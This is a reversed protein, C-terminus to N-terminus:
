NWLQYQRKGEIKNIQYIKELEIHEQQMKENAITLDAQSIKICMGCADGLSSPLPVVKCAITDELVVEAQIAQHINSFTLLYDM